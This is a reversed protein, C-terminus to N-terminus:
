TAWDSDNYAKLQLTSTASLFLGHGLANKLYRLIHFVAQRHPTTPASVFHSLKKVSFAIDPRTTTLYILRGILRRYSSSEVAALPVGQTRSLQSSHVM